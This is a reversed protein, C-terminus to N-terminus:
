DKSVIIADSVNSFGHVNLIFSGIHAYMQSSSGGDLNIADICSLPASKMLRALASTSMAANNSVLMIINGQKTIGLATRDATGVKLSPIRGKILLRPGSQVAFDIDSDKSFHKPSAIYAKHHKMYFVGWWSIPKLPNYVKKNNIRLGLPHFQRDFFGANIGILAKNHETMQDVSANTMNMSEAAVLHLQNQKPSIRFVHIHSWPSLLSASLDQYEIGPAVTHWQSAGYTMSALLYIVAAIGVRGSPVPKKTMQNKPRRYKLFHTIALGIALKKFYRLGLFRYRFDLTKLYVPYIVYLNTKSSM